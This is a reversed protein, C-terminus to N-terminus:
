RARGVRDGDLLRAAADRFWDVNFAEMRCVNERQGLDDFLHVVKGSTGPYYDIGLTPRGEAIGFIAAHYRMGVVLDARRLLYRVDDVDPDTEWVRLDVERGIAEQLAMAPLLDSLGFQVANMPFAVFAIPVTSARSLAVLAAGFERAFRQEVDRSYASGRSSWLHRIPRLNVAVVRKGDTRALLAAVEGPTGPRLADLDPRRAIYDFAPDRTVGVELGAVAPDAADAASRVSIRAAMRTLRRAVLRSSRRRFPGLGISEILFPLGRARAAHAAGLHKALVRPLDMMPGAGVVLADAADLARGVRGPRYDEVTVEVPVRLGALLRRTHEPRHSMVCARQLACRAHLELLVGGLAAADGVHDGGYAGIVVIGALVPSADVRRAPQAAQWLADLVENAADELERLRSSRARGEPGYRRFDEWFARARPDLESEESWQLTAGERKALTHLGGVLYATRGTVPVQWEIAGRAARTREVVDGLPTPEGRQWHQLGM